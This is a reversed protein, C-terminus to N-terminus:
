DVSETVLVVHLVAGCNRLDRLDHVALLGPSGSASPHTPLACRLGQLRRDRPRDRLAGAPDHRVPQLAFHREGGGGVLRPQGPLVHPLGGSPFLVGARTLVTAVRHLLLHSPVASPPLLGPSPCATHHPKDRPQRVPKESPGEKWKPSGGAHGPKEEAINMTLTRGMYEQGNWERCLRM